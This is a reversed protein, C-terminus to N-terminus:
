IRLTDARANRVAEDLAAVVAERIAREAGALTGQSRLPSKKWAMLVNAQADAMAEEIAETLLAENHQFRNKTRWKRLAALVAYPTVTEFAKRVSEAVQRAIEAERLPESRWARVASDTIFPLVDAVSVHAEGDDFVRHICIKFVPDAM